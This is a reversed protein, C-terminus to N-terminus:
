KLSPTRTSHPGTFYNGASEIFVPVGSPNAPVCVLFARWPRKAYLHSIDVYPIRMESILALASSAEYLVFL